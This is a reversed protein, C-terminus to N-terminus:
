ELNLSGTCQSEGTSANEQGAIAPGWQVREIPTPRENLRGLCRNADRLCRRRIVVLCAFYLLSNLLIPIFESGGHPQTVTDLYVNENMLVVSAPSILLIYKTQFPQSFALVPFAVLLTVLCWATVVALSTIVARTQNKARVGIWCSLWTCLRGYIAFTVLSCLVYAVAPFKDIQRERAWASMLTATVFPIWPLYWNRRIGSLKQLVIERGSLPTALLVDLTQQSRERAILSAGEGMYGVLLMIWLTWMIPPISKPSSLYIPVILLLLWVTVGVSVVGIPNRRRELWAVPADQPLDNAHGANPSRRRLWNLISWGQMRRIRTLLTVDSPFAHLVVVSRALVFCLLSAGLMPLSAQWLNGTGGRVMVGFIAPGFLPYDDWTAPSPTTYCWHWAPQGFAVLEVLYTAMLAAVTHRCRASCLLSLCGVLLATVSLLWLAAGLHAAEVGGTTFAFALVPLTLLFFSGMPVLRSLLKEFLISSPGIRTLLLLGLTGREKESPIVGCTLAPMFLYVGAFQLYVLNQLLPGGTGLPGMTGRGNRYAAIAWVGFVLFLLVAYATRLAYTQPRAAQQVLERAFLPLSFTGSLRNRM